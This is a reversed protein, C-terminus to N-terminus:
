KNNYLLLEHSDNNPNITNANGEYHVSAIGSLLVFAFFMVLYKDRLIIKLDKM